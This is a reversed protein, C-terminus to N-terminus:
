SSCILRDNPSWIASWPASRTPRRCWGKMAGPWGPAFIAPGSPGVTRVRRTDDAVVSATGASAAIVTGLVPHTPLAALLTAHAPEQELLRQWQEQLETNQPPLAGRAVATQVTSRAADVRQQRLQRQLDEREQRWLETEAAAIPPRVPESGRGPTLSSPTSQPSGSPAAEGPAGNPIPVVHASGAASATVAANPIPNSAPSGAPTSESLSPNMAIPNPTLSESRNLPPPTAATLAANRSFEPSASSVPSVPSAAAAWLPRMDLFAPNNVLGGMNLPAGTVQAPENDDILFAPSFARYSRGSVAEAGAASWEVRAYVGPEPQDKWLFEVPWAAAAEGRHDFDFFPRQRSSAQHAQWQSQLTEATRRDVRVQVRIPTEDQTAHLDHVGGPMWMLEPPPSVPGASPLSFARPSLSCTIPKM